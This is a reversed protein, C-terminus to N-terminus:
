NHLQTTIRVDDKSSATVRYNGYQFSIQIDGSGLLQELADADVVEQLPPTLEDPSVDKEDAMAEIIDIMVDSM